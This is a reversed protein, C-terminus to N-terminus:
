VKVVKKYPKWGKSARGKLIIQEDANELTVYYDDDSGNVVEFLDSIWYTSYNKKLDMLLRLPLQESVINRTVAILEGDPAYYANMFQTDVFFNVRDFTESHNWQVNTAKNFDRDFSTVVSSTSAPTGSAFVFQSTVLIVTLSLLKKM